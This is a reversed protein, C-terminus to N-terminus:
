QFIRARGRSHPDCGEGDQTPAYAGRGASGEGGNGARPRIRGVVRTRLDPDDVYPNSTAGGGARATMWAALEAALFERHRAQDSAWATPGALMVRAAGIEDPTLTRGLLQEPDVQGDSTSSSPSV